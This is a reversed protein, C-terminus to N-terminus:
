IKYSLFLQNGEKNFEVNKDTELIKKQIKGLPWDKIAQSEGKFENKIISAAVSKELKIKTIIKHLTEPEIQIDAPNNSDPSNLLVRGYNKDKSVEFNSTEDCGNPYDKCGWFSQGTEKNKREVMSQGCKCVYDTSSSNNGATTHNKTDLKAPRVASSIDKVENAYLPDSFIPDYLTKPINCYGFFMGWIIYAAGFDSVGEKTLFSKLEEINRAYIFVSALSQLVLNDIDNLQFSEFATVHRHLQNIYTRENSSSWGEILPSIALAIKQLLETRSEKFSDNTYISEDNSIINVVANLLELVKNSDDLEFSSTVVIPNVIVSNRDDIEVANGNLLFDKLKRYKQPLDPSFWPVDRFAENLYLAYCNNAGKIREKLIEDMIYVDVPVPIGEDELVLSSIFFDDVSYINHNDGIFKFLNKIFSFSKIELSLKASVECRLKADTSFFGIQCKQLDDLFITTRVRHWVLQERGMIKKSDSVTGKLYSIPIKILIPDEEYETTEVEFKIKESFCNTIRDNNNISVLHFKKVGFGKKPYFYAPSICRSILINNLNRTTTPIYIYEEM